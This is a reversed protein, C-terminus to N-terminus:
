TKASFASGIDQKEWEEELEIVDGGLYYQQKVVGKMVHHSKLEEMVKMPDNSFSIVDDVFRAIYEYHDDVQKYWLDPNAKTPRYGM